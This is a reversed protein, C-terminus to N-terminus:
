LNQLLPIPAPLILTLQTKVGDSKVEYDQVDNGLFEDTVIETELNVIDNKYLNDTNSQYEKQKTSKKRRKNNNEHTMRHTKLTGSQHFAKGCIDCVYPREGTHIREHKVLM